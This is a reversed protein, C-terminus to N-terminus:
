IKKKKLFFLTSNVNQILSNLFNKNKILSNYQKFKKSNLGMLEAPLMGVESLVSYRGGIFNNHHIVEAKLKNALITLSNKKNETIFINKDKKSQIINLNLITEITNGSKSVVLNVYKKKSLSKKKSQLNDIFSFNKKIKDKLFEYITQAGLTSGGMGILRFDLNQKYNDIFKKSFKYKYHKSLSRIIHNNEKIILKLNQQINKSQIKKKFNIFNIKSTFM